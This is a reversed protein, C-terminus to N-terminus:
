FEEWNDSSATAAMAPAPKRAAAPRIPAPPVAATQARAARATRTRTAGASVTAPKAQAPKAQAPKAWGPKDSPPAVPLTAAVPAASGQAPASKYAAAPPTPTRAVGANLRFVAVAATLQEAQERLSAAAAASQEVLAANQQTGQDMQTVAENVQGIGSSQEMAASSIESILDTVRQVQGVIERMSAGANSVLKNGADVKQVSEGIMSKIERAAQASRQALNRVEGAVVAFGRGQDGARAAEVAANLALINTQFAIGDIVNIIEAIKKSSAAIEDMTTVVDSVVAGGKAAAESASAAVQNAQRANEASQRVVSTLEEMSAATEELSSAQQETRGSLEQNGAAIQSSGTAISDSSMRVQDVIRALSDRMEKMAVLLSAPHAGDTNVEVALNGTSIERAINAAYDPEGGLQRAISKTLYIGTAISLGLGLVAFAVMLTAAGSYTDEATTAMTEIVSKQYDRYDNIGKSYDARVPKLQNWLFQMAGPMDGSELLRIYNAEKESYKDRLASITELLAKGKATTSHTKLWDINEDHLKREDRMAQMESKIQSQDEALAANQSHRTIQLLTIQAQSIKELKVLREGTIEAVNGHLRSLGVLGAIVVLALIALITAMGLTMRQHVKLNKLAV